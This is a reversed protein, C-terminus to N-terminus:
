EEVNLMERLVTLFQKSLFAFTWIAGLFPIVNLWALTKSFSWFYLWLSMTIFYVFAKIMGYLRGKHIAFQGAHKLASAIGAVLAAYGLAITVNIQALNKTLESWKSLDNVNEFLTTFVGILMVFGLLIGGLFQAVRQM